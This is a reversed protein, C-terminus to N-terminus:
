TTKRPEDEDALLESLRRGLPSRAFRSGLEAAADDLIQSLSDETTVYGLEEPTARPHSAPQAEAAARRVRERAAQLEAELAAIRAELDEPPGAQGAPPGQPRTGPSSRRQELIHAYAGQIEAFRRAAEPSGHNHDPHHVQALRRYASRLEADTASPKLGLVAYPDPAVDQLSVAVSRSLRALHAKALKGADVPQGSLQLGGVAQGHTRRSRGYVLAPPLQGISVHPRPRIQQVPGVELKLRELLWRHPANM